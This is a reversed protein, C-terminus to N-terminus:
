FRFEGTERMVFYNPNNELKDMKPISVSVSGVIRVLIKLNHKMALDIMHWTGRSYGDWVAVLADAYIAMRENRKYGAAKGEKDWDAPMGTVHIGNLHAYEVAVTDVGRAMGSVIEKTYDWGFHKEALIVAEQVINYDTIERSGAIIMKGTNNM